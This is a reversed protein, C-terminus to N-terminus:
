SYSAQVHRNPLRCSRCAMPRWRSGAPMGSAQWRPTAATSTPIKGTLSQAGITAQAKALAAALDKISESAMPEPPITAEESM